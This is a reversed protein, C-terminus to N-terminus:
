SIEEGIVASELWERYRIRDGVLAPKKFPQLPRYKWWWPDRIRYSPKARPVFERSKNFFFLFIVIAIKRSM